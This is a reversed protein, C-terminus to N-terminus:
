HDSELMRVGKCCGRKRINSDFSWSHASKVNRSTDRRTTRLFALDLAANAVWAFDTQAAQRTGLFPLVIGPQELASKVGVSM